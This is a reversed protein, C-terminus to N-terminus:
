KAVTDWEQVYTPIKNGKVSRYVTLTGGGDTSIVQKYGNFTIGHANVTHISSNQYAWHHAIGYLKKDTITLLNDASDYYKKVGGVTKTKTPDITQDSEASTIPQINANKKVWAKLQSRNRINKTQLKKWYSTDM